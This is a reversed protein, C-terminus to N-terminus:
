YKLAIINAMEELIYAKDKNEVHIILSGVISTPTDSDEHELIIEHDYKELFNSGLLNFWTDFLRARAKHRSDSSDCVFLLCNDPNEDFFELLFWTITDQIRADKPPKVDGVPYVSFEFIPKPEELYYSADILSLTYQANNDSTFSYTSDLELTVVYPNLSNLEKKM